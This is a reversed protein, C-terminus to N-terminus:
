QQESLGFNNDDVECLRLNKELREIAKTAELEGKFKFPVGGLVQNSTITACVYREIYAIM